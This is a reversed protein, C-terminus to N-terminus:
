LQLCPRYLAEASVLWNIYACSCLSRHVCWLFGDFEFIRGLLACQHEVPEESHLLTLIAATNRVAGVLQQVADHVTRHEACVCVASSAFRADYVRASVVVPPVSLGADSSIAGSVAPDTSHSETIVPPSGTPPSSAAHHSDPDLPPQEPVPSGEAASAVDASDTLPLQETVIQEHQNDPHSTSSENDSHLHEGSYPLRTRPRRRGSEM